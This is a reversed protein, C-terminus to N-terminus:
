ISPDPFLKWFIHIRKQYADGKTNPDSSEDDAIQNPQDIRRDEEKKCIECRKADDCVDTSICANQDCTAFRKSM